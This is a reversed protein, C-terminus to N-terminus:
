STVGQIPTSSPLLPRITEPPPGHLGASPGTGARGPRAPRCAGVVVRVSSHKRRLAKRPQYAPADSLAQAAARDPFEHIVPAPPCRDGEPM